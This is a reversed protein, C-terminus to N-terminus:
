WREADSEPTSFVIGICKENTDCPDVVVVISHFHGRPAGDQSDIVLHHHSHVIGGDDIGDLLDGEGYGECESDKCCGHFM